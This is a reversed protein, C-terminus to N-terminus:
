CHSSITTSITCNMEFNDWEFEFEHEYIEGGYIVKETLRCLYVWFPPFTSESIPDLDMCTTDLLTACRWCVLGLVLAM